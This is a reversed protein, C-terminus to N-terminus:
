EDTNLTLNPNRERASSPFPIIYLRSDPRLTYTKSEMGETIQPFVRTITKAYETETNLRKLDWFRHFGFLLEKRRETIIQDMADKQNSASVTSADFGKIRKERIKAVTSMAGSVDGLRAQCEALILYVEATRLGVTAYYFRNLTAGSLWCSAGVGADFYYAYAGGGNNNQFFLAYRQDNAQDFLDTLEKSIQGYNYMLTGTFGVSSTTPDLVEPNGDKGGTYRYNTNSTVKSITTYDVLESNLRLSQEAAEKAEQWDRHFLCVLAKLGYGYALSLSPNSCM